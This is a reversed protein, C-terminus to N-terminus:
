ADRAGAATMIPTTCDDCEVVFEISVDLAGHARANEAIKEFEKGPQYASDFIRGCIRCRSHFHRSTDADFRMQSPGGEIKRIYGHGALLELNRYVTALSVHPLRRRVMRHVEDATPHTKVRRLEALIVERQRTMRLQGTEM